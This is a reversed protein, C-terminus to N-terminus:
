RHLETFTSNDNRTCLLLVLFFFGLGVFCSFCFSFSFVFLGLEKTQENREKKGGRPGTGRERGAIYCDGDQEM